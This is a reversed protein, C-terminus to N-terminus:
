SSAKLCAHKTGGRAPIKFFTQNKSNHLDKMHQYIEHKYLFITNTLMVVSRM